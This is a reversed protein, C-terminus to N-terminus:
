PIRRERQAAELEENWAGLDVLARRAQTRVYESHDSLARKLLPVSELDKLMGFGSYGTVYVFADLGGLAESTSTLLQEVQAVDRMDAAIPTGGGARKVAAELKDQRRSCFAVDAGAAVAATAVGRGIGASAGIVLVRKGALSIVELRATM